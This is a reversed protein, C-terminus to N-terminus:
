LGIVEYYNNIKDCWLKYILNTKLTLLFKYKNKNYYYKKFLYKYFFVLLTYIKGNPHDSGLFKEQIALANKYYQM